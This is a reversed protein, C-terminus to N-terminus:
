GGTIPILSTDGILQVQNAPVWGYGIDTKLQVWDFAQTRAVVDVEIPGSLAGVVGLTTNPAAYLTVANTIMAKPTALMGQVERIIPVNAGNGRFYVYESDLWGSGFDGSVRWWIGDKYFGTVPLETGGPVTAVITYQPGPGSRINLYGTNIVVRAAARAVTPQQTTTTTTSTTTTPIVGTSVSTCLGPFTGPPRTTVQDAQVWGTTGDALELFYLFNNQGILYAEHGARLITNEPVTGSNDPGKGLAADGPFSVAYFQCGFPRLMVKPAEVWVDGAWGDHILYWHVNNYGGASLIPYITSMDARLEVTWGSGLTGVVAHLPQIISLGWGGAVTNIATSGSARSTTTPAAGSPSTAAVEAPTELKPAPTLPVHSFDGRGITFDSDVWGTGAVTSVQYWIYGAAVGLVPLETGGSVTIIVDYQPGPGTRVNLFSTNVILIPPAYTARQEPETAMAPTSFLGGILAILLVIFFLKSKLSM